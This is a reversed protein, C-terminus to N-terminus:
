SSKRPEKNASKKAAKKARKTPQSEPQVQPVPLRQFFNTSPIIVPAYPGRGTAARLIERAAGFLMSPGNVQVARERKEDTLSPHAAVIGCMELSFEYPINKGEPLSQRIELFVMWVTGAEAQNDSKLLKVDSKVKISDVELDAERKPDFNSNTRVSVSDLWYDSLQLPALIM